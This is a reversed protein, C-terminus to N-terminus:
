RPMACTHSAIVTASITLLLFPIYLLPSQWQVMGFLINQAHAPAPPLPSFEVPFATRLPPGPRAEVIRSPTM